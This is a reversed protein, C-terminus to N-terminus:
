VGYAVRAAGGAYEKWVVPHTEGPPLYGPDKVLVVDRDAFTVAVVGRGSRMIANCEDVRQEYTAM